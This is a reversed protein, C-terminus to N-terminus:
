RTRSDGEQEFAALSGRRLYMKDFVHLHLRALLWGVLSMGIGIGARTLTRRLRVVRMVTKGVLHTAVAIILLTLLALGLRGLTVTPIVPDNAWRVCAWVLLVIVAVGLIRATNRLVGSLKWIKFLMTNSVGLLKKLHRYKPGIDQMGEEIALFDWEVNEKPEPFGTVCQEQKFAYQTIRYASTMLSYAEADSFSDLDTRVAALSEQIDKAIGYCTLPGRRSAPCADDSAEYPDQCDIWDVPDVTLDSKLHVFMLGRLLASRRRAALDDFQSERIRAQLITNSRLPVGLMGASPDNESGMQGSGDSILVVTCDQELISGVGQNDCVGGDVLRVVREPYLNDLILPEFLGPVCASASVAHGLRVQRHGEPAEDYYMRRLRDNGDIESDIGAPAEGMWSATFQWSHGTNLTTANIVLIPVKAERRWNHYQPSFDPPGDVPQVKLENLWRPRDGEGDPVRSFIEREYLEGARITRTYNPVFMMKLNTALEALVRTRINRQVGALFDRQIRRVIEIYDERTIQNDPKSQLLRRVELYYHAGIVSGGSVCSLVEVRRLVDLEALRALTGIHFLSARFGGGSLGLGIKGTFASRVPAANDGFFKKLAAWAPMREFEDFEEDTQLRALAALQTITTQYQWEPISGRAKEGQQLWEVAEDYQGLGFYAEAVTSYYWWSSENASGDLKAALPAVKRVIEQRIARAEARRMDAIEHPVDAKGDANEELSALQDLVFAANIGTYGQDNEPGEAYGRRFYFLARELHQVQNDVEWKRKSIAGALGLTEQNKTESLDEVESLIELARDLRQDVPLDADKYTCLAYQQYAKLRLSKDKHIQTDAVTRALIRRAYGFAKEEKLKVVLALLEAPSLLNGGRLTARAQSISTSKQEM